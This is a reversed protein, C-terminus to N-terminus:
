KGVCFSAFIRGLIDDPAITGSISGLADLATRLSAAVLEPDRGGSARVLTEAEDLAALAAHLSQAHREALVLTEGGLDALRARLVDAIRRRLHDIGGDAGSRPRISVRLDSTEEATKAPDDLDCKTRVRLVPVQAPLLDLAERVADTVPADQSACLLVLEARAIADLARERMAEAFRAEGTRDDDLGAVDVLRIESAARGPELEVRDEIADRTTGAAPSAIVRTRGALANFLSSKGANPAGVLVVRPAADFREWAISGALRARLTARLEALHEALTEPAIAVVDEQDTFDIGAEVLALDHAVREALGRTFRGLGGDALQRAARVQAHTTAAIAAAIGEAQTLDIRGRAFARLTFEGPAASRLPIALDRAAQLLAAEVAAVLADNAPLLFELTDEGTASRPALAAFAICPVSGLQTALRVTSTGREFLAGGAVARRLARCGDGSLRLIARHGAGPASARAVITSPLDITPANM